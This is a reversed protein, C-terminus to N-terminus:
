RRKSTYAVRKRELLLPVAVCAVNLSEVLKSHPITITESFAEQIKDHIGQGENGLILVTSKSWDIEWYPKSPKKSSKNHSSTSFVKFGVNSLESVSKLLSNITKEETGEFRKFPLHFVAGSSARLVKQGLPHAGGALFIADVGAALATRFLNGMNGPDQIRDLVLVFDDNSNFHYNPISSIEVLAAIGDPNITSIASALVEESVINILSQQFKKSLNQNKRLWKETVLIKSPNKGSKLLEKILHTGEM